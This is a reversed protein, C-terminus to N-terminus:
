STLRQSNNKNFNGIKLLLSFLEWDPYCRKGHMKSSPLSAFHVMRETLIFGFKVFLITSVQMNRHTHIKTPLYASSIHPEIERGVNKSNMRWVFYTIHTTQIYVYLELLNYHIYPSLVCCIICVFACLM